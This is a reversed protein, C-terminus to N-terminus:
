VSKWMRTRTHVSSATLPTDLRQTMVTCSLISFPLFLVKPDTGKKREKKKIEFLDTWLPTYNNCIGLSRRVEVKYKRRAKVVRMTLHGMMFMSAVGTLVVFGHEKSLVVMRVFRGLTACNYSYIVELLEDTNIVTKNWIRLCTYEKMLCIDWNEWSLLNAAFGQWHDILAFFLLLSFCQTM